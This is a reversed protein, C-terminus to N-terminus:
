SLPPPSQYLTWAFIAQSIMLSNLEIVIPNADFTHIKGSLGAQIIAKSPLNLRPLDGFSL